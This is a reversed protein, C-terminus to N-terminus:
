IMAYRQNHTWTGPSPRGDRSAQYQGPGDGSRLVHPVDLGHDELRDQSGIGKGGEVDMARQSRIPTHKGQVSTLDFGRPLYRTCVGIPGRSTSAPLIPTTMSAPSSPTLESNYFGQRLVTRVQTAIDDLDQEKGKSATSFWSSRRLEPDGLAGGNGILASTVDADERSIDSGFESKVDDGPEKWEELSEDVPTLPVRSRSNRATSGSGFTKYLSVIPPM